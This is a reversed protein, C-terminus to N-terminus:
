AYKITLISYLTVPPVSSATTYQVAAGLKQRVMPVLVFTRTAYHVMSVPTVLLVGSVITPIAHRTRTETPVPVYMPKVNVTRWISYLTVHPVHRQITHIALQWMGTQVHVYM